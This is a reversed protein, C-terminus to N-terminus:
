HSNNSLQEMLMEMASIKLELIQVITLRIFYLETNKVGHLSWHRREKLGTERDNWSKSYM